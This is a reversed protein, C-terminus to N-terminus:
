NGMDQLLKKKMEEARVSEVSKFLKLVSAKTSREEGNKLIEVEALQEGTTAIFEVKIQDENDYFMDAVSEVSFEVVGHQLITIKTELLKVRPLSTENINAEENKRAELFGMWKEDKLAQAFTPTQHKLVEEVEIVLNTELNNVPYIDAAGIDSPEITKWVYKESLSLNEESNRPKDQENWNDYFVQIKVVNTRKTSKESNKDAEEFYFDGISKENERWGPFRGAEASGSYSLPLLSGARVFAPCTPRKSNRDFSNSITDLNENFQGFKVLVEMGNKFSEFKEGTHFDYWDAGKPLYVKMESLGPKLIPAVLIKDRVM